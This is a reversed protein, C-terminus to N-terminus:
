QFASLLANLSGTNYVGNNPRHIEKEVHINKMLLLICTLPLCISLHDAPYLVFVARSLLITIITSDEGNGHNEMKSFM